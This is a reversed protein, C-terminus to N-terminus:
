LHGNRYALIGRLDAGFPMERVVHYGAAGLKEHVDQFTSPTWPFGNKGLVLLLAPATQEDPPM